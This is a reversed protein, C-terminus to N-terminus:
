RIRRGQGALMGPGGTQYHARRAEMGSRSLGDVKHPTVVGPDFQSGASNLAATSEILDAVVCGLMSSAGM